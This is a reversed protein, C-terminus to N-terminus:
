LFEIDFSGDRPVRWYFHMSAQGAVGNTCLVIPYHEEM